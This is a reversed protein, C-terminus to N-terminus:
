APLVKLFSLPRLVKAVLSLRDGISTVGEPINLSIMRFCDVFADDCIAKTEKLIKYSRIKEPAWLLRKRDASYKVGYEDVWANALDEKSVETSYKEAVEVTINSLNEKM